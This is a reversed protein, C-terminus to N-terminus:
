LQDLLKKYKRSMKFQTGDFMTVQYDGHFWPEIVKIKKINVITSRHIRFFVSSDLKAKFDKMTERVLYQKDTTVIKIYNGVAEVSNIDSPSLLFIKGDEKIMIKKSGTRYRKITDILDKIPQAAVTQAQLADKVKKLASEFREETFPKLVYDVAHVEFARLAFEDYATIFVIRPLPHDSSELKELVEFGNYEPMQIDLFVVDPKKKTIENIAEKGNQCISKIKMEEDKRLLKAIRKCALPEDDVIITTIKQTM